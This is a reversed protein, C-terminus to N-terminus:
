QRNGAAKKCEDAFARLQDIDGSRDPKIFAGVHSKGTVPCGFQPVGRNFDLIDKLCEEGIKMKESDAMNIRLFSYGEKELTEVLPKMKACWGCGDSYLFIVSNESIKYKGLCSMNAFGAKTIVELIKVTCSYKITNIKVVKLPWPNSPHFYDKNLVPAENFMQKFLSLPIDQPIERPIPQLEDITGYGKEPTVVILKSENIKMGMVGEDFGKIMQGAGAIFSLTGNDFKEGNTLKGVYEVTVLNGKSVKLETANANKLKLLEDASEKCEDQFNQLADKSLFSGLNWKGNAPCAFQPVGQNFDFIGAYCEQAIKIKETDASNAWLFKYSNNAINELEIILPKMRNCYGCGDSHLFAVTDLTLNYKELCYIRETMVDKIEKVKVNFNLTEGTLKHGSYISSDDIKFIKIEGMQTYYVKGTEPEHQLRVSVVDECVFKKTDGVSMGVIDNEFSQKKEGISLYTETTTNKDDTFNIKVVSDNKVKVEETGICGSILVSLILIAGVAAIGLLECRLLNKRNM